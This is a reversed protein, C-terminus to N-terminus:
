ALPLIVYGSWARVGTFRRGMLLKVRDPRKWPTPNYMRRLIAELVCKLARSAKHELGLAQALVGHDIVSGPTRMKMKM